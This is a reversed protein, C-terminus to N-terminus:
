KATFVGLVPLSRDSIQYCLPIFGESYLREALEYISGEECNTSIHFCDKSAREVKCNFPASIQAIRTKATM